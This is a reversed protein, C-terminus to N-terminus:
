HISLTRKLTEKWKPDPGEYMEVLVGAKTLDKLATADRYVEGCIVKKIGATIIKKACHYCPSYTTYLTSGVASNGGIQALQLLTNEEGHLTRICHGQEMKHGEEGDCHPLGSPAGNYGTALIRKDKVLVAGAKLRDCTSRTAVIKAIAMFYDDFKPRFYTKREEEDHPKSVSVGSIVHVEDGNINAVSTRLHTKM